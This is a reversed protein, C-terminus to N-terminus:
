AAVNFDRELQRTILTNLSTGLRAAELILRRHLEPPMRLALKGSVPRLPEIGRAQCEDLFVKLSLEGERKLGAIDAAYFDAGGNLNVFEGRFMEIDPDYVIVAQHGSITMVNNM